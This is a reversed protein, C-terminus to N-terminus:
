NGKNELGRMVDQAISEIEAYLEDFSLAMIKRYGLTLNVEKLLNRYFTRKYALEDHTRMYELIAILIRRSWGLKREMLASTVDEIHLFARTYAYRDVQELSAFWPDGEWPAVTIHVSWWLRSIANRRLSRANGSLFWRDLIRKEDGDGIPWREVVYEYFVVHTMYTWLRVDSAQTANIPLYEYVKIASEIDSSSSPDLFPAEDAIDIHHSTLINTEDHLSKSSNGAYFGINSTVEGKLKSVFSSRFVILKSM